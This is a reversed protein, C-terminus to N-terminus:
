VRALIDVLQPKSLPELLACLDEVSSFPAADNLNILLQGNGIEDLKRKKMDEM